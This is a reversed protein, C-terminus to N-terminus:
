IDAFIYVSHFNSDYYGLSDNTSFVRIEIWAFNGMKMFGRFNICAFIAVNVTLLLYIFATSLLEKSLLSLVCVSYSM